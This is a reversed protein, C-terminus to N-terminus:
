FAAFLRSQCLLFLLFIVTAAVVIQKITLFTARVSGGVVESLGNISCRGIPICSGVFLWGRTGRWMLGVGAEIVPLGGSTRELCVFVVVVVLFFLVFFFVKECQFGGQESEWELFLVRGEPLFGLADVSEGQIVETQTEGTAVRSQVDM